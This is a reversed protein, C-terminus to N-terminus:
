EHNGVRRTENGLWQLYKESGDVIPLAIIEPLEYSHLETVRETLAEVHAKQTKLLILAEEDECLKGNWYYHSYISPVVNGCAVLKEEVLTKTIKNAEDLNSATVFVVVNDQMQNEWRFHIYHCFFKKPLDKINLIM